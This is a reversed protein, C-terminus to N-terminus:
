GEAQIALPWEDQHWRAPLLHVVDYLGVPTPGVM